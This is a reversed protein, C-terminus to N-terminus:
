TDMDKSTRGKGHGARGKEAETPVQARWIIYAQRRQKPGSRLLLRQCGTFHKDAFLGTMINIPKEKALCQKQKYDKPVVVTLVLVPKPCVVM